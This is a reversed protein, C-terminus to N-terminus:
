LPIIIHDENTSLPHWSHRSSELCLQNSTIRFGTLQSWTANSPLRPLCTHWPASVRKTEHRNYSSLFYLLALGVGDLPTQSIKSLFECGFKKMEEQDLGKMANLFERKGGVFNTGQACRLQRVNGRIAIFARWTNIFADTTLDDLMEIHIARSCMCTLILGYKKTAIDSLSVGKFLQDLSPLHAVWCKGFHVVTKNIFSWSLSVHNCLYGLFWQFQWWYLCKKQGEGVLRHTDAHPPSPLDASFLLCSVGCFRLPFCFGARTTENPPIYM